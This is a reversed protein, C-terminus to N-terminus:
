GNRAGFVLHHWGSFGAGVQYLSPFKARIRVPRNRLAPRSALDLEALGGRQEVALPGLARRWVGSRDKAHVQIRVEGIRPVPLVRVQVTATGHKPYVAYKGNTDPPDTLRLTVKRIVSVLAVNSVVDRDPDLGRVTLYGSEQPLPVTGALTTGGEVRFRGLVEDRGGRAGSTIVSVRRREVTDDLTISIPLRDGYTHFRGEVGFTVRPPLARLPLKSRYAVSGHIRPEDRGGTCSFVFDANFRKVQGGNDYAADHVRVRGYSRDGGECWRGTTSVGVPSRGTSTFTQGPALVHGRPATFRVGWEPSWFSLLTDSRHGVQLDQPPVWHDEGLGLQDGPESRLQMGTVGAIGSGALPVEGSRGTSSDRVTLLGAVPGPRAPTFGVRVACSSTPALPGCDHDIVSFAEDGASIVVEDVSMPEVSDNTVRVVVDREAVDPYQSPWDIRSPLFTLGSEDRPQNIKIEGFVAPKDHCEVEFVVWLRDQELDLDFIEFRGGEMRCGVGWLTMEPRDTQSLTDWYYGANEYAGPQLVEGRPPVLHLDLDRDSEADDASVTLHRDASGTIGFEDSDQQTWTHAQGPNSGDAGVVHASSGTPVVEASAPSAHLLPLLLALAVWITRTM